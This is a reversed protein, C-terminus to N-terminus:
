RGRLRPDLADRPGHNLMSGWTPYSTGVCLGLFSPTAEAIIVSAMERTALVLIPVILTPVLHRAVICALCPGFAASLAM